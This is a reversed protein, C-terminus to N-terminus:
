FSMTFLTMSIFNILTDTLLALQYAFALWVQYSVHLMLMFLDLLFYRPFYTRVVFHAVTELPVITISTMYPVLMFSSRLGWCLFSDIPCWGTHMPIFAGPHGFALTHEVMFTDSYLPWRSIGLLCWVLSSIPLHPSPSWALIARPTIPDLGAGPGVLWVLTKGLLCPSVLLWSPHNPSGM